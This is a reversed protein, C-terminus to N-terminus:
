SVACKRILRWLRFRFVSCGFSSSSWCAIARCSVRGDVGYMALAGAARPTKMRRCTRAVKVSDRSRDSQRSSQRVAERSPQELVGSAVAPRHLASVRVACSWVALMRRGVAAVAARVVSGWCGGFDIWESM